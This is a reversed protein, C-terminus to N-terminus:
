SGAAKRIRDLLGADLEGPAAYIIVEEVELRESERLLAYLDREALGRVDNGPFDRMHGPTTLVLRRRGDQPISPPLDAIVLVIPTSPAYHRYKMGPARPGETTHTAVVVPEGIAKEIAAVGIVGPRLLTAREGSLDVVTSEIGVSSPGGDIVAAIRGALDDHVHRATTPSPRGSLNASPAVLPGSRALLAHAVPHSPVRLAVTPLGARAIAPISRHSVLVLTLPGPMFAHALRRAREDTIACRDLDAPDALHVILPNDSPRGKALFVKAIADASMADAGLGYVTETPFAVLEGCRLLDAGREIAASFKQPDLADLIETLM